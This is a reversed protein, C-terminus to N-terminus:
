FNSILHKFNKTFLQFRDSDYDTLQFDELRGESNLSFRIQDIGKNAFDSLMKRDIPINNGIVVGEESKDFRVPNSELTISIISNDNMLLKIEDDKKPKMNKQLYGLVLLPQDDIKKFSIHLDANNNYLPMHGLTYGFFNFPQYVKIKEFKDEGILFGNTSNYTILQNGNYPRNEAVSYPDLDVVPKETAKKKFPKKITRWLWRIFYVMGVILAIGLVFNVIDLFLDM